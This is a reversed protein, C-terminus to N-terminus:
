ITRCLWRSPRDHADAHQRKCGCGPYTIVYPVPKGAADLLPLPTGSADRITTGDKAHRIPLYLDGANAHRIPIRHPRDLGNSPQRSLWAGARQVRVLASIQMVNIALNVATSAGAGKSAIWAVFFSFVVAVLGMFVPGPNAGSIFSPYFFGVVYGVFIGTIAVM